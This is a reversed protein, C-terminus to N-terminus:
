TRGENKVACRSGKKSGVPDIGKVERAMATTFGLRKYEHAEDILLADVGLEDFSQVEDANRDLQEKARASANGAAKASGKSDKTKKKKSEPQEGNLVKNLDEQLKEVEREANKISTDSDGSSDKMSEITHLKDDIKEQIFAVQREISDPILNFVSHPVVVIDWDSYKIKGYFAKRGELTRDSESLTLIKANPYLRKAETVFQGVTANQVVIMPKKATGIRRMEMATSILTFTKGTGVEHALMLPQTTGIIVSKKQHPYLMVSNVAGEFREPLFMEDIEKPVIANHKDNYVRMMKDALNEDQRMQERAWERFDDKLEAIKTSCAETAEKDYITSKEGLITQQKKVVIITGNMAAKAIEDGLVMIGTLKSYVGAQRNKDNSKYGSTTIHWSGGTNMVSVKDLGFKERFYKEYLDTDIWTSGINFEILHAPIDMPIAKELEAINNDYEGKINSEKAILLKERVNGSLYEHRVEVVGNAPNMFGLGSKIIEQVIDSQERGLKDAIYDTNIGGFKYISAIVGDKVNTPNPETKKGLIRGSFVSTKSAKATVKGDITKTEKYDELAAVAPFDVDNKLFSIATNKNMQGYRSVFRDYASNLSTLLPKLGADDENELQYKLVDDLATKIARYDSLCESKQRDKVRNKNIGLSVAEGRRAILIEGDKGAVLSGEREQTAEGTHQSNSKSNNNVGDSKSFTDVWNGLAENQNIKRQPTCGQVALDLPTAKKTHSLWRAVWSNLTNLM